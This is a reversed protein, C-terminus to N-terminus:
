HHIIPICYKEVVEHEIICGRAKDWGNMFYAADAQSLLLISKGLYWAGERSTKPADEAIISDIIEFGSEKLNIEVNEREIRIQENTKGQMPQSIFIKM